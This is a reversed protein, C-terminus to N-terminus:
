EEISMGVQWHNHKSEEELSLPKLDQNLLPGMQMVGDRFSVQIHNKDWGLLIGQGESSVDAKIKAQVVIYTQGNLRVMPYCFDNTYPFFHLARVLRDVYETTDARRVLGGFPIKEKKSFYLPAGQQPKRELEGKIMSAGFENLLALGHKISLAMLKSATINHDLDFERQVLIDGEDIGENVFHWTVGHQREGNFIVWSPINVGGYRPLPGNHFNIIGDQPISLLGPYIILYSNINFILDLKKPRLAAFVEESNINRGSHHDIGERLCWSEILDSPTNKGPDSCVWEISVEALTKFMELADLAMKANGIVAIRKM